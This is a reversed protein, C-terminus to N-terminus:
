LSLLHFFYSDRTLQSVLLLNYKFFPIFLVKHSTITPSLIADRIKTVEKVFSDPLYVLYHKSLCKLNQLITQDFCIYSTASTDVLWTVFKNHMLSSSSNAVINGAFGTFETCNAEDVMRRKLLKLLEQQILNTINPSGEEGKKM